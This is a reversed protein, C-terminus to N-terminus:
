SENLIVEELFETLCDHYQWGAHMMDRGYTNAREDNEPAFYKVSKLDDHLDQNWSWPIFKVGANKWACELINLKIDNTIAINEYQSLSIEDIVKNLMSNNEESLRKIGDAFWETHRPQGRMSGEFFSFWTFRRVNPVQFLVYKPKPLDSYLWMLSNYFNLDCASGSKAINVDILNLRKALKKAYLDEEHLGVGETHSCGQFLIFPKIPDIESFEVTRYGYSNFTYNVDEYYSDFQNLNKRYLWEADSSYFKRTESAVNHMRLLPEKTYFSDHDSSM